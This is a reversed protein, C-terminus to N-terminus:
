KSIWGIIEKVAKKYQKKSRKQLDKIKEDSDTIITNASANAKRIKEEENKLAKKRAADEGKKIVGEKERMVKDIKEQTKKEELATMEESETELERIRDIEEM